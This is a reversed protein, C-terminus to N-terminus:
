KQVTFIDALFTELSKFKVHEIFNSTYCDDMQLLWLGQCDHFNKKGQMVNMITSKSQLNLLSKEWNILYKETGTQTHTHPHTHTKFWVLSKFEQHMSINESTQNQIIIISYM